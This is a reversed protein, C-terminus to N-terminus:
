YDQGGRGRCFLVDGVLVDDPATYTSLQTAVPNIPFSKLKGEDDCYYRNYGGTVKPNCKVMQFYGGGIAERLQDATLAGNPKQGKVEVREGTHKILLAM